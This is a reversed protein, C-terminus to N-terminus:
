SKSALWMRANGVSQRDANTAVNVNSESVHIILTGWNAERLATALAIAAAQNDFNIITAYGREAALDTVVGMTKEEWVNLKNMIKQELADLKNM